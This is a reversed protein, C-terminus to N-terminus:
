KGLLTSRKSTDSHVRGTHWVAMFHPKCKGPHNSGVSVACKILACSACQQNQRGIVGSRSLYASSRGTDLRVAACISHHATPVHRFYCTHSLPAFSIPPVTHITSQSCVKYQMEMGMTMKDPYLPSVWILLGGSCLSLSRALLHLSRMSFASATVPRTKPIDVGVMSKEPYLTSLQVLLCGFRLSLEKCATAIKADDLCIRNRVRDQVQMGVM